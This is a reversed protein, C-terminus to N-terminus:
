VASSDTAIKEAKQTPYLSTQVSELWQGEFYWRLSLSNQYWRRTTINTRYLSFTDCLDVGGMSKNYKRVIESCKITIIGKKSRGWRKEELLDNTNGHTSCIDACKNDYWRTIFVGSNADTKFSSSGRGSTEVRESPLNCGQLRDSRITAVTPFGLSKLERCVDITCLSIDFYLRFHLQKSLAEILRKMVFAETCKETKNLSGTYLWIDNSM